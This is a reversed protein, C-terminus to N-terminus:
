FDSRITAPITMGFKHKRRESEAMWKALQRETWEQTQAPARYDRQRLLYLMAEAYLIFTQPDDAEMTGTDTGHTVSSLYGTGLVRIQGVTPPSLFELVNGKQKWLRLEYGRQYVPRTNITLIAEDRYFTHATGAANYVGVTLESPSSGIEATVTLREWGNGGHYSSYTTTTGDYIGVRVRDSELCYVDEVYSLKMGGYSAYTSVSYTHYGASTNAVCKCASDGHRVFDDDTIESLTLNTAATWNDPNSTSTWDEFEGDDGLLNEDISSSVHSVTYVQHVDKITSPITYRMQNEQTFLTEDDLLRHVYPYASLRAYNLADTVRSPEYPMLEYTVGSAITGSYARNVTITGATYSSVRRDEQAYTGSTILVWQNASPSAILDALSADTVNTTAAGDGTTTSSYYVGTEQLLGKRLNALTTTM